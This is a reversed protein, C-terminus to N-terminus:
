RRRTVKHVGTRRAWMYFFNQEALWEGEDPIVTQPASEAVVPKPPRSVLDNWQQAAAWRAGKGCPVGLTLRGCSKGIHNNGGCVFHLRGDLVQLAPTGIGCPCPELAQFSSNVLAHAQAKATGMRSRKSQWEADSSHRFDAGNWRKEPYLKGNIMQIKMAPRM